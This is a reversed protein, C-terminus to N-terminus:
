RNSSDADAQPGEGWPSFSTVRRPSSLILAEASGTLNGGQLYRNPLLPFRRELQGDIANFVLIETTTPWWVQDTTVFGRGQGQLEARRSAFEWEQQGDAIHLATLTKGSLFVRDRAVGLVTQDQERTRTWLTEGTHMELALVLESDAPTSFLRQGDIIARSSLTPRKQAQEVEVQRPYVRFWVPAGDKAKLACLSGLETSVYLRGDNLTLELGSALNAGEPVRASNSCILRNWLFEGSEASLCVVYLESPTAGRRALIWLRDNRVVPPGEFRLLRDFKAAERAWKLQGQREELDLCVLRSPQLRTEGPTYGTIPGGLRAYLQGGAITLSEGTAGHVPREPRFDFPDIRNPFVRGQSRWQALTKPTEELWAGLGSTIHYGMISSGTNWFVFENWVQPYFRLGDRITPDDPEDDLPLSWYDSGIDPILSKPPSVDVPSQQMSLLLENLLDTWRDERGALRGRAEPYRQRYVSLEFEAVELEGSLIRCVILKALVEEVPTQPDPYRILLAGPQEPPVLMLWLSSATTFEGAQLALEAKRLIAKEATQTLFTERLITDLFVENESEEWQRRLEEARPEFRERYREIAAAPLQTLLIRSYEAANLFLREDVRVVNEDGAIQVSELLDIARDWDEVDLLDNISALRRSLEEDASPIVPQASATTVVVWSLILVAINGINRLM